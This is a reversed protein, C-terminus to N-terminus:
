ITATISQRAGHFNNKLVPFFPLSHSGRFPPFHARIDGDIGFSHLSSGDFTQSKHESEEPCFYITTSDANIMARVFVACLFTCNNIVALRAHRHSFLIIGELAGKLSFASTTFIIQQPMRTNKYSSLLTGGKVTTHLFTPLLQSHLFLVIKVIYITVNFTVTCSFALSRQERFTM